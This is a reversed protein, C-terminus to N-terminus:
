DSEVVYPIENEALFFNNTINQSHHIVRLIYVKDDMIEYIIKYKKYIAYRVNTEKKLM